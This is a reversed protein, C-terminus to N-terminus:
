RRKKNEISFPASAHRGEKSHVCAVSALSSVALALVVVVVTLRQCNLQLQRVYQIKMASVHQLPTRHIKLPLFRLLHRFQSILFPCHSASGGFYYCTAQLSTSNSKTTKKIQTSKPYININIFSFMNFTLILCCFFFNLFILILILFLTFYRM